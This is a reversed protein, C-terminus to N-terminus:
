NPISNQLIYFNLFIYLDKKLLIISEIPDAAPSNSKLGNTKIPINEGYRTFGEKWSIWTFNLNNLIILNLVIFSLFLYLPSKIALNEVVVIPAKTRFVEKSSNGCNHTLLSILKIPGRGKNGSYKGNYLSSLIYVQARGPIPNPV